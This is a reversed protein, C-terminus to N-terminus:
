SIYSKAQRDFMKRYEGDLAMLEDHTGQEKIRGHEFLYIRDAMRTTSLRHSIFIVTADKANAILNENLKYESVPDLASSPEDLIAIKNQSGGAFVRAIAVKQAEGGSLNVGDESFERTLNTDIGNPLTALRKTFDAKDLATRITEEDEPTTKRMMVNEGLTAAYIQYDQFVVGITNRYADTGYDRIDNGGYKICGESVDYLRMLLKVFTTKGAGNEGVIAIKEGPKITLSIDELTNHENGPYCFSMHDLELTCDKPLEKTGKHGEIVTEYDLIVRFKEAFQGIQQLDIICYNAMDLNRRIYNAANNTAAVDGLAISKVVLALYGLTAPVCFFSFITFVSIWNILSLWTMSPAYKRGADAVRDLAEDFQKRLPERVNTMKCEKAFEPQYFVRKSYEARRLHKKSELMWTYHIAEIKYRTLLNVVFGAVPFVAIIPSITVLVVAAACMALMGGLLNAVVFIAKKIMENSTSAVTIYMDYYEPNDYCILDMQSNKKILDRQIRGCLAITKAEAWHDLVQGAWEIGVIVVMAGALLLLIEKIGSQDSLMEIIRKLLYTDYLAQAVNVLCFLLIITAVLKKDYRAAYKITFIANKVIQGVTLKKEDKKNM